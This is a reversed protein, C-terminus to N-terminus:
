QLTEGGDASQESHTQAKKIGVTGGGGGLGVWSQQVLVAGLGLQHAWAPLGGLSVVLRM